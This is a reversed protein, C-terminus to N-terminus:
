GVLQAAPVTAEGEEAAVRKKRGHAIKAIMMLLFVYIGVM